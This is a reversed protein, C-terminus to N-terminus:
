EKNSFYQVLRKQIKIEFVYSILIVMLSILIFQILSYNVSNVVLSGLITIIPIHLVYIGYSFPAINELPKFFNYGIWDNKRWILAIMIFIIASLFHRVEFIPYFGISIYPERLTKYIVSLSPFLLIPLVIKTSINKFSLKNLVYLDALMVGSWWISFYVLWRFIQIPYIFYLITSLVIIIIAASNKNKFNSVPIFLMYFWWEYSLSWLASNGYTDVITGPKLFFEADQLM